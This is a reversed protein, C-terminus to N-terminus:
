VYHYISKIYHKTSGFRREINELRIIQSFPLRSDKWDAYLEVISYASGFCENKSIVSLRKEFEPTM